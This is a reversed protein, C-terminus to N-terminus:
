VPEPERKDLIERPKAGEGPGIVGREELMDILRAARAYGVKLKRQLYSSSAKGAELVALRAEEYLEDDDELEGSEFISGTGGHTETMVLEDQPLEDKYEDQLYKVVKKVETESIFASQVREPKSMDGSLYLMDGAGLLTEAGGQDLITSRFLM